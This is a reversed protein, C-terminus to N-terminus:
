APQRPSKTGSPAYNKGIEGFEVDQVQRKRVCRKIEDYAVLNQLMYRTIWKPRHILRKPYQLRSANGDM